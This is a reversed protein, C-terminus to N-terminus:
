KTGHNLINQLKIKIRNIKVGVNNESIGLIGAIEKYSFSELYLTIITKEGDTLQQLAEIFLTEQNTSDSNSFESETDPIQDTYRIDPKKKRFDTLATNIAVKYIWTKIQSNGKFSHQSKWLQYIIEQFLDEQDQRSPRYVRCIKYLMPQFTQIMTLFQAEEM